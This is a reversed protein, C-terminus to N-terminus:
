LASLAREVTPKLMAGDVTQFVIDDTGLYSEQNTATWDNTAIRYRADPTLDIERAYVFDGTREELSAARHQNTRQMIASLTEGSVDAVQLAGDFRVYSDFDFRTLPGAALGAGFTTHGLFAIDADTAQRVAEVAFLISESLDRTRDVTAIIERDEDTLHADLVAAIADALAPDGPTDASVPVSSIGYTPGTEAMTVDIVTIANGWSGGHWYRTSSQTHDITLHDHGGIILVGDPLTPMIATDAVVGAHSLIVKVDTDAMIAAFSAATHSVPDPLGLTDRVSERYVFPNTAALGMFGVRVGDLTLHASAPAFFRGTRRDLINGIVTAGISEARAVFDAMDDLIATEHNGLNIVLPAEAALAEVFRWDASAGSRLAAVNGREFIDGNIVIIVPTDARSQRADRVTQLVGALTRYPSHLDALMIITFDASHPTAALADRGLLGTM